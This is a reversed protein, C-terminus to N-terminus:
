LPPARFILSHYPPAQEASFSHCIRSLACFFQAANYHRGVRGSDKPLEARRTSTDNCPVAQYFWAGGKYSEEIAHRYM